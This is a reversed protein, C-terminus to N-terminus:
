EELSVLVAAGIVAFLVLPFWVAVAPPLTNAEGLASLLGQCLLFALGLLLGVALGSGFRRSRRIGHLAPQALLLMVFSSAPMSFSKQMQTEYYARHRTGSWAGELIARIRRLPLFQTPNAAFAVNAPSPGDPWPLADRHETRQIGNRLTLVEADRLVWRGDEWEASRAVTRGTAQGEEDRPVITVGALRHGNDEVTTISVIGGGALMWVPKAPAETRERPAPRLAWWDQLALEARPVGQDLLLGHLLVIVTVAPVLLGLLRWPSAGVSRLAVIENRQALSLFVTLAGILVALPVLQNVFLPLRLGVYTLLDASGQGRELVASMKDLLDLLQLLAAFALLVALFRGVFAKSVYRVLTM